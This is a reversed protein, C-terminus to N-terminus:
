GSRSSRGRAAVRAAGDGEAEGRRSWSKDSRTGPDPIRLETALIWRDILTSQRCGAQCWRDGSGGRTPFNCRRTALVPQSFDGTLSHGETVRTRESTEGDPRYPVKPVTAAARRSRSRRTRCGGFHQWHLLEEQQRKATSGNDELETWMGSIHHGEPWATYFFVHSPPQQM